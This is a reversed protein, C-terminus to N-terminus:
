PQRGKAVECRRLLEEAQLLQLNKEAARLNAADQDTMAGKLPMAMTGLGLVFGLPLALVVAGLM